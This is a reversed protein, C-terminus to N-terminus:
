EQGVPVIIMAGLNSPFEDDCPGFLPYLKENFDCHTFSHILTATKLDFLSILGKEFDVFVGVREVKGKYVPVTRRSYTTFTGARFYLAWVGCGPKYPIASRRPVSVRIVGLLWEDKQGVFVEFYFRGSTFGRDAVVNYSGLFRRTNSGPTQEGKTNFWVQKLDPTLLLNPHATEPDLKLDVAYRQLHRLVCWKEDSILSMERNLKQLFEQLRATCIELNERMEILEEEKFSQSSHVRSQQLLSMNPLNQLFLVPSETQKLEQLKSKLGRLDIIKLELEETVALAESDAQIQMEELKQVLGKHSMQVKSLLKQLVGECQTIVKRTETNQQALSEVISSATQAKEQVLFTVKEETSGLKSRLERHARELSVTRHNSHAGECGPCLLVQEETCFSHLLQQHEPCVRSQLGEEPPVLTHRRLGKVRLHPELHTSCFSSLCEVCSKVAKQQPITCVECLVGSQPEERPQLSSFSQSLGSIFTNVRLQPRQSYSEKCVPCVCVASSDWYSSLCSMCFNHGCPTSVPRVFVGLCIPCLLEDESVLPPMSAM